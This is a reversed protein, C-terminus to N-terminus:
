ASQPYQILLRLVREPRDPQAGKRALDSAAPGSHQRLHLLRLTTAILPRNVARAIRPTTLPREGVEADRM